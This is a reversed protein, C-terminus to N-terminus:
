SRDILPRGESDIFKHSLILYLDYFLWIGFGGASFLQLFGILTHGSYFRHGGFVGLFFWFLLVTNNDLGSARRATCELCYIYGEERIQCDECVALNCDTCQGIAEIEPHLECNM